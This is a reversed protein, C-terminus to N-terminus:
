VKFKSILTSISDSSSDLNNAIQTSHQASQHTSQVLNVVIIVNKNIEEAAYSQEESATAIQTNMDRIQSISNTIARISNGAESALEVTASTQKQGDRMASVARSAGNQVTEIIQQIEETSDQTRKALARVEDAVVAFGRGQEGARAAEIAANLALLNTQEAIGKIVDLVAGVSATDQELKNMAVAIKDIETSLSNISTISKEMVILGSRAADDANQAADAAGSANGAVEQVTASMENVATAVQDTCHETEGTHRAIESATKNIATSAQTLESSTTQVASIITVIEQQMSRLNEALVGLEDSRNTDIRSTFDGNAFERINDMLVKLPKIFSQKITVWLLLSIILAVSWISLKSLFITDHAESELEKTVKKVQNSMNEALETLLKSPERDIGKVAADGAKHDYNNATFSDFGQNYKEYMYLHSKAFKELESRNTTNTLSGSLSKINGQIKKHMTQFKGWYKDRNQTDHGRILTNKWEQVQIKFDFNIEHIKRENEIEIGLLDDFKNINTNLSFIAMTTVILLLGLGGMVITMLRNQMSDTFWNM